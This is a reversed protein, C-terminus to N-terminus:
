LNMRQTEPFAVFVNGDGYFANIMFRECRNIVVISFFNNCKEFVQAEGLRRGGALPKHNWYFSIVNRLFKRWSWKKGTRELGEDM